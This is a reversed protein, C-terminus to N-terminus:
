ETDELNKQADDMAFSRLLCALIDNAISFQKPSMSAYQESIVTVDNTSLNGYILADSSILLRDCMRRLTTLSVGSAGREIASLSKPGIGIM